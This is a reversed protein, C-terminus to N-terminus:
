GRRLKEVLGELLVEQRRVYERYTIADTRREEIEKERLVQNLVALLLEHEEGTLTFTMGATGTNAQTM